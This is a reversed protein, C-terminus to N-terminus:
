HNKKPCISIQLKKLNYFTNYILRNEAEKRRTEETKLKKLTDKLVLQLGLHEESLVGYLTDLGVM